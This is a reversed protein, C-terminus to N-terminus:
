SRRDRFWQFYTSTDTNVQNKNYVRRQVSRVSYETGIDLVIMDNNKIHLFVAIRSYDCIDVVIIDNEQTNPHQIFYEIHMFKESTIPFSVIYILFRNCIKRLVPRLPRTALKKEIRERANLFRSRRYIDLRVDLPLTFWM